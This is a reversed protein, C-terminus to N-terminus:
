LQLLCWPSFGSLVAKIMMLHGSEAQAFMGSWTTKSIVIQFVFDHLFAQYDLVAYPTTILFAALSTGFLLLLRNLRLRWIPFTVVLVLLVMGIALSFPIAKTSLYELLRGQFRDVIEVQLTDIIFGMIQPIYKAIVLYTFGAPLLVILGSVVLRRISGFYDIMRHLPSDDLELM